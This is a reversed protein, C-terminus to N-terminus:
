SQPCREEGTKKLWISFRLGPSKKGRPLIVTELTAFLEGRPAETALRAAIEKPVWGLHGSFEKGEEDKWRGLVEV